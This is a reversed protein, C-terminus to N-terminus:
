WQFLRGWKMSLLSLWTPLLMGCTVLGIVLIKLSNDLEVGSIEAAIMEGDEKM